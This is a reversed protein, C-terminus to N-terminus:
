DEMIEETVELERRRSKPPRAPQDQGDPRLMEKISLMLSQSQDALAQRLTEDFASQTRRLDTRLQETSREQVTAKTQLSQISEQIAQFGNQLAKVDRCTQQIQKSQQNGVDISASPANSPKQKWPDNTQLIDEGSAVQRLSPRQACAVVPQHPAVEDFIREFVVPKGNLSVCTDKIDQAAAILWIQGTKRLPRGKIGAKQLFDAIEPHRAQPPVGLLRFHIALDFREPFPKDPCEKKWVERFADEQLRIGVGSRGKVLGYHGHHAAVLTAPKIDRGAWFIRIERLVKPINHASQQFKGNVYFPPISTGSKRFLEISNEENTKVWICFSNAREPKAPRSDFRWTRGWIEYISETDIQLLELVLKAPQAAFDSWSPSEHNWEDRFTTINITTTTPLKIDQNAVKATAVKKQGCQIIWGAIIIHRGSVDLAPFFVEDCKLKCGKPPPELTLVSLEQLSLTKGAAAIQFFDDPLATCLGRGALQFVHTIPADEGNECVFTGPLLNIDQLTIRSQAIKPKNSRRDQHPFYNKMGLSHAKIVLRIQKGLEGDTRAQGITDKESPEAHNWLLRAAQEADKWPLIKSALFNTIRHVATEEELKAGGRIRCTVTLTENTVIHHDKIADQPLIRTAGKYIKHEAPNYDAFVCQVAYAADANLPVRGCSTKGEPTRIFLNISAGFEGDLHLTEQLDDFFEVHRFGDQGGELSADDADGLQDDPSPNDDWVDDAVAIDDAAAPEHIRPPVLHMFRTNGSWLFGLAVDRPSTTWDDFHDFSEHRRGIPIVASWRQPRLGELTIGPPLPVDEPFFLLTRPAAHMRIVEVFAPMEPHPVVVWHDQLQADPENSGGFNRHSIWIVDLPRLNYEDWHMQPQILDHGKHIKHQLPNFHRWALQIEYGIEHDKRADVTITKGDPLKLFIMCDSRGTPMAGGVSRVTICIEDNPRLVFNKWLAQPHITNCNMHIKHSTPNFDNWAQQISTQVITDDNAFIALTNGTPLRLFVQIPERTNDQTEEFISVSSEGSPPEQNLSLRITKTPRLFEWVSRLDSICVPFNLNLSAVESGNSRVQFPHVVSVHDDVTPIQLVHASQSKDFQVTPTIAEFPQVHALTRPKDSALLLLPFVVKVHMGFPSGNRSLEVMASNLDSQADIAQALEDGVKVLLKIIQGRHQIQVLVQHNAIECPLQHGQFGFLIFDRTCRVIGPIARMRCIRFTAILHAFSSLGGFRLVDSTHLAIWLPAYAHVEAISNGVLKCGEQLNIPLVFPQTTGLAVLIELASLFRFKGGCERLAGLLKKSTLTSIPLQHQRSYMSMVVSGPLPNNPEIRRNKLVDESSALNGHSYEPKSYIEILKGSLFTHQTLSEPIRDFWADSSILDCSKGFYAAAVEQALDGVPQALVSSHTMVALFRRRQVPSVHQLPLVKAFALEYGAKDLRILFGRRFDENEWVPAVNEATIVRIRMQSAKALVDELAMGVATNWGSQNGAGSFSQCPWSLTMANCDMISVSTWLDSNAADCTAVFPSSCDRSTPAQHLHRTGHIKSYSLTAKVDSDASASIRVPYGHQSLHRVALTWGSIGGCFPVFFNMGASEQSALLLPRSEVNSGLVDSFSTECFRGYKYFMGHLNMLRKSSAAVDFLKVQMELADPVVIHSFESQHQTRIAYSQCNDISAAHGIVEILYSDQFYIRDLDCRPRKLGQMYLTALGEHSDAGYGQDGDPKLDRLQDTFQLHTDHQPKLPDLSTNMNMTFIPHETEAGHGDM